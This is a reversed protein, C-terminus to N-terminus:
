FGLIPSFLRATFSTYRAPQESAILCICEEDSTVRPQHEITEDLDAVEGKRYDGTEDGYAGKLVMTLEAGRHGHHPLVLGPQGRLFYLEGGGKPIPIDAKDIGSVIKRWKVGALEKGLYLYLPEPLVAGETVKGGRGFRGPRSVEEHSASRSGPEFGEGSLAAPAMSDLLIGGLTEMRCVEKFCNRCVSVHCAVLAALAPALTGATYALLTELQPHHRITM